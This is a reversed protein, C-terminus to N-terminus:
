LYSLRIFIAIIEEELAIGLGRAITTLNTKMAVHSFFTGFYLAKM